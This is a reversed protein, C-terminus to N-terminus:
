SIIENKKIIKNLDDLTFEDKHEGKYAKGYGNEIMYDNISKITNNVPEQFYLGGMLRGYKEENNFKVWLIKDKTLNLMINKSIKAAQIHLDRNQVTKLPKMEPSDYGYMRFTDKIPQDNHYFVITVTDGDYVDVVKCKTIIGSFTFKQLTSFSNNLLDQEHYKDYEQKIEIERSNHQDNRIKSSPCGM